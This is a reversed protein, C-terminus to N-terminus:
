LKLKTLAGSNGRFAGRAVGQAEKIFDKLAAHAADRAATSQEAAGAAIAKGSETGSLSDLATNLTTLRAPAYNRKPMKKTWTAKAANTYSSHAFTVFKQLDHPVNGTLGLAVRDAQAPFAARAITRFAAAYDERALEDSTKLEEHMSTKGAIGTLRVGFATAATGLLINGSALEPADYGHTDMVPNIEADNAVTILFTEADGIYNQIAQNQISRKVKPATPAAKPSAPDSTINDAM